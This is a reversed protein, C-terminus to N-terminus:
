NNVITPRRPLLRRGRIWNKLDAIEHQKLWGLSKRYEKIFLTKDFSVKELIMKVYELM